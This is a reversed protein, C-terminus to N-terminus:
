DFSFNSGIMVGLHKQLNSSKIILGDTKITPRYPFIVNLLM